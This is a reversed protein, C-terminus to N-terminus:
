ASAGLIGPRLVSPVGLESHRHIPPLPVRPEIANIGRRQRANTTFGTNRACGLFKEFSNKWGRFQVKQHVARM